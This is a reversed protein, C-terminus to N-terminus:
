KCNYTHLHGTTYHSFRSKTNVVSETKISRSTSVLMEEGIIKINDLYEDKRDPHVDHDGVCVTTDISVRTGCGAGRTTAHILAYDSIHVKDKVPNLNNNNKYYELVWQM